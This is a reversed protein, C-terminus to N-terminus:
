APRLAILMETGAGTAPVPSRAAVHGGMAETLERVIALGLGSGSEKPTPRHRAVYLREFVHPLDEPAIGPGDDAISLLVWGGDLGVSVDMRERAFKLAYELLNAVAQGLRDGDVRAVLATLPAHMTLTVGREQARPVFATVTAATLNGADVTRIDFTFSRADLRSLLLLDAVLRDLRKSEALIVEGARGPEIAHDALAEAYGQISALPTRLDHSVSMLFQRELGRSRELGAAMTNISRSLESLEDTADPRPEPVRAALDGSAIRHATESAAVVPRTLTRTLRFAVIAGLLMTGVSALAFWRLAPPAVSAPKNTLVIVFGGLPERQGSALTREYVGPAAAFVVGHEYGTVIQGARLRDPQLQALEIGAPIDGRYDLAPGAFLFGIDELKLTTAIKQLRQRALLPATRAGAGPPQSLEEFVQAFASAQRELDDRTNERAGLRSLALTGLGALLLSAAVMGCIALTLRRRV